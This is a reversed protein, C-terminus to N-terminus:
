ALAHPNEGEAAETPEVPYRHLFQLFLVTGSFLALLGTIATQIAFTTFFAAYANPVTLNLWPVIVGIVPLLLAFLYYRTLHYRRALIFPGIAIAFGFGIPAIWILWFFLGAYSSIIFLVVPPLLVISTVLVLILLVGRTSTEELQKPKVYGARPYVWRRKAAEILAGYFLPNLTIIMFVLFTIHHALLTFVSALGLFIVGFFLDALGDEYYAQQVKLAIVDLETSTSM